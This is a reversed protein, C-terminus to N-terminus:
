INVVIKKKKEFHYMKEETLLYETHQYTYQGKKNCPTVFQLTSYEEKLTNPVTSFPFLTMAVM